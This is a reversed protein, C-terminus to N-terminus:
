EDPEGECFLVRLRRRSDQLIREVTRKSRGVQQAIEDVEYGEIRLKVIDRHPAPMRELAEAVVMRLHADSASETTSREALQDLMLGETNLRADRKGAHHFSLQARIRNLAIALLLRWLEEGPAVEYFGRSARQFFRRFVSQVIDDADIGGPLDPSCKAKALAFLRRAYRLYIEEAAARNGGQFEKLLTHDSVGEAVEASQSPSQSPSPSQGPSQSPQTLSQGPSESASQGPWPGPAQRPAAPPGPSSVRTPEASEKAM